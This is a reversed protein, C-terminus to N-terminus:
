LSIDSYLILNTHSIFPSEFIDNYLAKDSYFINNYLADVTYTPILYYTILHVSSQM